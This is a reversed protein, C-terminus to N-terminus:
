SLSSCYDDTLTQLTTRNFTIGQQQSHAIRKNLQDVLATQPEDQWVQLLMQWPPPALNLGAMIAVGNRKRVQALGLLKANDRDVLEGWSLGAFCVWSLNEPAKNVEKIVWSHVGLRGLARRWMDGVAVFSDTLSMQALTHDNPLFTTVSFLAPTALVVGGGSLRQCLEVGRQGARRQLEPTIKQSRGLVVATTNYHWCLHQVATIPTRFKEVIADTEAVAGDRVIESM